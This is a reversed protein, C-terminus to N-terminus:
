SGWHARTPMRQGVVWCVCQVGDGDGDGDGDGGGAGGGGDGDGDGYDCGGAGDDDDDDGIIQDLVGQLLFGPLGGPFNATGSSRPTRNRRAEGFVVSRIVHLFHILSVCLYFLPV